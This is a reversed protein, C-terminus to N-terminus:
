QGRQKKQERWLRGIQEDRYEPDEDEGVGFWGIGDRQVHIHELRCGPM